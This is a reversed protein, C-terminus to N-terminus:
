CGVQGHRSRHDGLQGETGENLVKVNVYSKISCCNRCRCKSREKHTIVEGLEVRKVLSGTTLNFFLLDSEGPRSVYTKHVWTMVTDFLAMSKLIPHCVCRTGDNKERVRGGKNENITVLRGENDEAM